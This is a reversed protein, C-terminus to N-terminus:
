CTADQKFKIQMSGTSANKGGKRRRGYTLSFQAFDLFLSPNGMPFAATEMM